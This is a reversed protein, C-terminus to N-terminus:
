PALTDQRILSLTLETQPLLKDWLFNPFDLDIGALLTLFHTKFTCIAREAANSQHANPPVLQYDCKWEESIVRLYEQSSKNDLVQIDVKHGGQQLRTMISKYAAIRHLDKKSSLLKVLITNSDWHYALMIYQNEIRYCTTLRSM